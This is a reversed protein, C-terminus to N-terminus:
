NPLLILGHAGLFKTCVEILNSVYGGLRIAALFTQAHAIGPHMQSDAFYAPMNAATIIGFVLVRGFVKMGGLMGDDLRKFGIFIPHPAKDILDCEFLTHKPIQQQSVEYSIVRQLAAPHRAIFDM